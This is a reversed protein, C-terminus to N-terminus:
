TLNILGVRSVPRPSPTRRHWTCSGDTMCFTGAMAAEGEGEFDAGRHWGKPSFMSLLFFM